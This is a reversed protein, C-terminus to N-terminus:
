DDALEIERELWGELVGDAGDALLVDLVRQAVVGACDEARGFGSLCEGRYEEEAFGLIGAVSRVEGCARMLAPLAVLTPLDATLADLRAPVGDSEKLLANDQVAELFAALTKLGDFAEDVAERALRTSEQAGNPRPLLNLLDYLARADAATSAPLPVPPPSPPRSPPLKIAFRASSPTQPGSSLRRQKKMVPPIPTPSPPPTPPRPERHALAVLGRWAISILLTALPTQTAATSTYRGLAKAYIPVIGQLIVISPHFVLSSATSKGNAVVPKTSPSGSSVTNPVELAELVPMIDRRIGTILPNVVRSVLSILGERISKLGDGRIDASDIGLGLEDFTELVEGAFTALAIAHLQTSNLNPSQQTPAPPDLFAPSSLLPLLHASINTILVSLPRHLCRITARNLHTNDRTARLESAILTGLARGRGAPIPRKGGLQENSAAPGTPQALAKSVAESLKLSWVELYSGDQVLPQPAPLPTPAPAPSPRRFSSLSLKNLPRASREFGLGSDPRSPPVSGSTGTPAPSSPRSAPRFFSPAKLAHM